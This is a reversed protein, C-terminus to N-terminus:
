GAQAAKVTDYTGLQGELNILDGSPVFTGLAKPDTVTYKAMRGGEVLYADKTGNMKSTMGDILLPNTDQISRAALMINGRTLGGQYTTALKLIETMFWAYIWGTAYTTKKPDLGQATLTKVYLQVFPDNATDSSSSTPM